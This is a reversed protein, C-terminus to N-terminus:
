HCVHHERPYRPAIALHSGARRHGGRAAGATDYALSSANGLADTVATLNGHGDYTYITVNGASDTVSSPQNFAPEYTANVEFAGSIRVLNGKADYTYRRDPPSSSTLRRAQDYTFTSVRGPETAETVAGSSDTQYSTTNGEPDTFSKSGDGYTASLVGSLADTHTALRGEEDYAITTKYGRPSTVATLLHGADYGYATIRGEPDTVGTLNGAADHAVQYLRGTPDTVRSVFGDTGYTLAWARGSADTISALRTTIGWVGDPPTLGNSEYALTHANGNRDEMRTLRGLANFMEKGGYKDTRMWTGDARKELVATDGAPSTYSGDAQRTYVMYQGDAQLITVTDSRDVLLTDYSSIWNFGFPWLDGRRVVVNGDVALRPRAGSDYYFTEVATFPYIGPAVRYGLANRTDWTAQADYGEGTYTKGQFEIRWEARAPVQSTITFLVAATVEPTDNATSYRLALTVPFGRSAVAPFAYRESVSGTGVNFECGPCITQAPGHGANAIVGAPMLSGPPLEDVAPLAHGYASFHTVTAQLAKKGGGLDVVKGPVPDRWRNQTGDWWYCLTDAGVPLDGTYDVSWLVGKNVPFILGEPELNAFGVPASGDAFYGPLEDNPLYTVRVQETGVLAGAPFVLSTNNLSNSATGGGAGIPTTQTDLEHLRVTEVRDTENARVPNIRRDPGFGNLTFTLTFVGAPLPLVFSGDGTTTTTITVPKGQPSAARSAPPAGPASGSSANRLILPLFLFVGQPGGELVGTATVLVGALGSDGAANVVQGTLTGENLSAANVAAEGVLNASAPTKSSPNTILDHAINAAAALDLDTASAAPLTSSVLLASCLLLTVYRQVHRRSVTM